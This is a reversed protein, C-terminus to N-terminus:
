EEVPEFMEARSPVFHLGEEFWRNWQSRILMAQSQAMQDRFNDYLYDMPAGPERDEMYVFVAGQPVPSPKSLRGKPLSMAVLAIGRLEMADMSYGMESVTITANTPALGAAAAAEDFTQGADMADKIADHKATQQEAFADAKAKATALTAARDRVDEFPPIHAAVFNTPSFIYLFTEGMHANYIDPAVEDDQIYERMLTMFPGPNEFEVPGEAGFLATTAVDQGFLDAVAQLGGLGSATELLNTYADMEAADRAHRPRLIAAIEDAVEEFDRQVTKHTHGHDADEGADEDDTEDDAEALAEKEAGDEERAAEGDGEDDEVEITYQGINDEYYELLDDRTPNARPFYNTLPIAIYAVATKLPIEFTSPNNDYYDRVQQESAAIGSAAFQDELIAYRVGLRDTYNAVQDEVESPSVWSASNVLAAIKNAALAQFVSNEYQPETLNGSWRLAQKYTNRSFVGNVQFAPERIIESQFESTTVALGLRDALREMAIRALAQTLMTDNAYPSEGGSMRRLTALTEDLQRGPVHKGNLKGASAGDAGGNQCSSLSASGFSLGFTVAIIFAFCGWVIKNHILRNFHYIFM